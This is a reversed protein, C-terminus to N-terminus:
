REVLKILTGRRTAVYLAGADAAVPEDISEGVDHQWRVVGQDDILLVTGNLLGVVYVDGVRALSATAAGPLRVIVASTDGAIRRLEGARTLVVLDGRPGTVPQAHAVDGIDVRAYVERQANLLALTGDHLPVALGGHAVLPPASPTAPLVTRTVTKGAADVVFLTDRITVVAIGDHTRVPPVAVTSGLAISWAQAGDALSQAILEGADNTFVIVSDVAVPALRARRITGQWVDKASRLGIAHTRSEGTGREAFYVVDGVTTLGTIPNSFRRRWYVDGTATERVTIERGTHSAILVPGRVRPAATYGRGADIRWAEIPSEPAREDPYMNPALAAGEAPLPAALEPVARPPTWCGISALILAAAFPVRFTALSNVSRRV